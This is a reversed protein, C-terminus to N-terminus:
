YPRQGCINGPPAYRCVLVQSYRSYGVACGIRRTTRWVIQTYHGTAMMGSMNACDLPGLRYQEGEDAWASLLATAITHSGDVRALNEGERPRSAHPSHTLGGGAVLQDAWVQAHRALEVDWTVPQLGLRARVANHDRIMEAALDPRGEEAAASAWLGTVIIAAAFIARPSTHVM